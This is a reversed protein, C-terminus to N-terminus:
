DCSAPAAATAQLSNNPRHPERRALLWLGFVLVMPAIQINMRYPPPPPNGAEALAQRIGKQVAADYAQETKSPTRHAYITRSIPPWVHWAFLVLAFYVGVVLYARKRCRRFAWVAICLGALYVVTNLWKFVYFTLDDVTM